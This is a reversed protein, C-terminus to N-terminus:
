ALPLEQIMLSKWGLFRFNFLLLGDVISDALELFFDVLDISIHKLSSRRGVAFTIVDFDIFFCFVIDM